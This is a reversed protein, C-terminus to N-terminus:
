LMNKNHLFFEHDTHGEGGGMSKTNVKFGKNASNEHLRSVKMESETLQNLISADPPLKSKSSINLEEGWILVSDGSFKLKPWDGFWPLIQLKCPTVWNIYFSVIYFPYSSRPCVTSYTKDWIYLTFVKKVFYGLIADKQTILSWFSIATWRM